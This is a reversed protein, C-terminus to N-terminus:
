RTHACQVPLQKDKGGIATLYSVAKCCLVPTHERVYSGGSRM